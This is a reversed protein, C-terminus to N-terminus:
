RQFIQKLDMLITSEEEESIVESYVAASGDYGPPTKDAFVLHDEKAATSLCFKQVLRGSSHYSRVFAKLALMTM